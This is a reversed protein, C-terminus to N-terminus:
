GDKLNHTGQEELQKMNQTAEVEQQEADQLLRTIGADVTTLLSLDTPFFM